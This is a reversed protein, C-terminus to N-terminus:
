LFFTRAAFEEETLPRQAPGYRVEKDVGRRGCGDLIPSISGEVPVPSVFPSIRQRSSSPPM